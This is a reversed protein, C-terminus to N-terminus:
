PVQLSTGVRGQINATIDADEKKQFKSIADIEERSLVGGMGHSSSNEIDEVTSYFHRGEQAAACEGRGIGLAQAERDLCRLALSVPMGKIESDEVSSLVKLFANHYDTLSINGGDVHDDGEPEGPYGMVETALVEEQEQDKGQLMQDARADEV